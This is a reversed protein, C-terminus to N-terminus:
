SSAAQKEKWFNKGEREREGVKKNQPPPHLQDKWLSYFFFDELAAGPRWPEQIVIFGKSVLSVSPVPVSLFAGVGGRFGKAECSWFQGFNSDRQFIVWVAGRFHGCCSHITFFPLAPKSSHSRKTQGTTSSLGTFGETYITCGPCSSCSKGGQEWNNNRM